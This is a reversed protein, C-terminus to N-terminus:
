GNYKIINFFILYKCHFPVGNDFDLSVIASCENNQYVCREIDNNVFKDQKISKLQLIKQVENQHKELVITSINAEKEKTVSKSYKATSSVSIGEETTTSRPYKITSSASVEEEEEEKITSKSYKARNSAIVEQEM